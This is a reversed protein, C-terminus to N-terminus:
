AIVSPAGGTPQQEVFDPLATIAKTLLDYTFQDAVVDDDCDVWFLGEAVDFTKDLPEVQAVRCETKGDPRNVLEQTSILAKKM